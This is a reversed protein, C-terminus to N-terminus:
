TQVHIELAIHCPRRKTNSQNWTLPPQEHQQYEHFQQGDRNLPEYFM